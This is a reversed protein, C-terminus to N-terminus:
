DWEEDDTEKSFPSRDAFSVEDLDDYVAAFRWALPLIIALLLGAAFGLSLIFGLPLQISRWSLFQISVAVANQVSFLAAGLITLGIILFALVKM